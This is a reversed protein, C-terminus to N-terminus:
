ARDLGLAARLEAQSVDLAKAVSALVLPMPSRTFERFRLNHMTRLSIGAKRAIKPWKWTPRNAKRLPELCDKGAPKRPM